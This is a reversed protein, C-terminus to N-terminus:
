APKRCSQLEDFPGMEEQTAAMSVPHTSETSLGLSMMGLGIVWCLCGWSARLLESFSLRSAKNALKSHWSGIDEAGKILSIALYAPFNWAVKRKLSALTDPLSM